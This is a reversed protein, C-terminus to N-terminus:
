VACGGDTLIQSLMRYLEVTGTLEKMKEINDPDQGLKIIEKFLDLYDADGKQSFFFLLYVTEGEEFAIGQRAFLLSIGDEYVGADKNAHALAIGKGVIIYNGYEEVNEIAKAIYGEDFYGDRRLDEAAQRMADKWGLAEDTIKVYKLKLMKMLASKQGAEAELVDGLLRELERNLYDIKESDQTRYVSQLRSLVSAEQPQAPTFRADGRFALSQIKHIDEITLLPSVVAVPFVCDQIPVTSIVFDVDDTHTRIAEVQRTTMVDTVHLNFYNRIQAELYKSTAMSGPCSVIVNCPRRGAQGRLLAACIHIVISDKMNADLKYLLYNELIYFKTEAIARIQSFVAVSDYEDDISFEVGGWNKMSKIHSILSKILLDDLHINAGIENSIELLFHCITGYLEFDNISQIQPRLDRLLIVKEMAVIDPRSLENVGLNEAVCQVMDGIMDLKVSGNSGLLPPLGAGQQHRNLLVFLCVAIEYFIEKAFLINNGRTFCNMHYVIDALRYTFGIKQMLFQVFFTTESQISPILSLFIDILLNTVSRADGELRIGKKSRAVFSVPSDALYEEVLKCDGVITNRTVFMEDALQQMSYYGDHYILTLLIFIKREELSLKYLYPDMAYISDLLAHADQKRTLRIAHSGCSVAGSMGCDRTFDLIEQMDTRLTKESIHYDDMLKQLPLDEQPTRLLRQLIETSRKKM